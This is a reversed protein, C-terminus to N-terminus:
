HQHLPSFHTKPGSLLRADYTRRHPLSLDCIAAQRFIFYSCHPFEANVVNKLTKTKNSYYFDCSMM